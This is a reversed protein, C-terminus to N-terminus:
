IVEEELCKDVGVLKIDSAIVDDSNTLVRVQIQV